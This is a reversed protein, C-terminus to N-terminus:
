TEAFRWAPHRKGVEERVLLWDRKSARKLPCSSPLDGSKVISYGWTFGALPAIAEDRSLLPVTCLFLTARFEMPSLSMQAPADFFTPAYGMTAFPIDRDLYAPLRDVVRLPKRKDSYDEKAWQIWGLESWYGPRHSEVVCKIAPFGVGARSVGAFASLASFGSDSPQTTMGCYVHVIGARGLRNFRTELSPVSPFSPEQM